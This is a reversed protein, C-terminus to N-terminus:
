IFNGGLQFGLSLRQRQGLFNGFLDIVGIAVDNVLMVLRDLLTIDM